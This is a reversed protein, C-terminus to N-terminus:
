KKISGPRSSRKKELRFHDADIVKVKIGTIGARTFVSEMKGLAWIDAPKTCLIRNFELLDAKRLGRHLTFSVIRLHSLCRAYEKFAAHQKEKESATEGFTLSDDTFGIFLENKGRLIKQVMEFAHDVSETIRSHGAPYMGLNMRILNLAAIVQLLQQSGASSPNVWARATGADGRGITGSVNLM